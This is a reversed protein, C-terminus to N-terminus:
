ETEHSARHSEADATLSDLIPEEPARHVSSASGVFDAAPPEETSGPRIHTVASSRAEGDCSAEPAEAEEDEEEEREGEEGAFKARFAAAKKEKAERAEAKLISERDGSKGSMQRQKAVQQEAHHKKEKQYKIVQGRHAMFEKAAAARGM